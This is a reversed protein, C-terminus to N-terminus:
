TWNKSSNGFQKEYHLFWKIDEGIVYLPGLKKIDKNVGTIKQQQKIAMRTPTFFYRMITKIQMQSIINLM